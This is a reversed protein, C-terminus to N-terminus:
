KTDKMVIDILFNSFNSKVNNIVLLNAIDLLKIQFITVWDFYTKNILLISILKPLNIPTPKFAVIYIYIYEYISTNKYYM